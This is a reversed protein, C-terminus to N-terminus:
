ETMAYACTSFTMPTCYDFPVRVEGLYPSQTTIGKGALTYDQLYGADPLPLIDSGYEDWDGGQYGAEYLYLTQGHWTMQLESLLIVEPNTPYTSGGVGIYSKAFTARLDDTTMVQLRDEEPVQTQDTATVADNYQEMFSTEFEVGEPSVLHLKDFICHELPNDTDALWPSLTDYRGDPVAVGYPNYIFQQDYVGYSGNPHVWFTTHPSVLWRNMIEDSHVHWGFQPKTIWFLPSTPLYAQMSVTWWTLLATSPTTWSVNKWDFVDTAYYDRLNGLDTDTWDRVDNLPMRTWNGTMLDRGQTELFPIILDKKEQTMSEPWLVERFQNMTVVALGFHTTRYQLQASSAGTYNGRKPTSRYESEADSVLFLFSCTPLDYAVVKQYVWSRIETNSNTINKCSWFTYPAGTADNSWRELDLVIMDGQRADYLPNEETSGVAPIDHYVYGAVVPCNISTTPRDIESVAISVNFDEPDFGTITITLTAEILGPAVIYRQTSETPYFGVNHRFNYGTNNDRYTNFDTSDIPDGGQDVGYYTSDFNSQEREWVIACAKLGSPHMKWDTDPFEILSRDFEDSNTALWSSFTQSPQWAWSPLAATVKKVQAEDINQNITGDWPTEIESLPFVYFQSSADVYIGFQRSGFTSHEVTAVGSARPWDANQQQIYLTDIAEADDSIEFPTDYGYDRLLHTALSGRSNAYNVGPSNLNFSRLFVGTAPHKPAFTEFVLRNYITEDEGIAYHVVPEDYLQVQYRRQLESIQQGDFNRRGGGISAGLQDEDFEVLVCAGKHKPFTLGGATTSSLKLPKGTTFFEFFASSGEIIRIYQIPPSQQVEIYYNGVWFKESFFGDPNIREFHRLRHLAMPLYLGANAGRLIKHQIM